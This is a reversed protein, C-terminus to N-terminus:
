LKGASKMLRLARQFEEEPLEALQDRSMAEYDEVTKSRSRKTPRTETTHMTGLLYPKQEAVRKLATEARADDDADGADVLDFVDIPDRFGLQTAIRELRRRRQEDLRERLEDAERSKVEALTKYDTEM